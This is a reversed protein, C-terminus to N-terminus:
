DNYANKVLKDYPVYDKLLEANLMIDQLNKYSEETIFPTSLWSDYKKYNDVITTLDKLAIDPFQPLIVKAIEEASHNSVFQLGEKIANTFKKLMEENNELYSKRAYFATYPVEGSYAGINGVIYGNRFHTNRM